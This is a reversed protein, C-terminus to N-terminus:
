ISTSMSSHVSDIQQLNAEVTSYHVTLQPKEGIVNDLLQNNAFTICSNSHLTKKCAEILHTLNKKVRKCFQRIILVRFPMLLDPSTKSHNRFDTESQRM